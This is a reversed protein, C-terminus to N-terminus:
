LGHTGIDEVGHQFADLIIQLFQTLPLGEHGDQGVIGTLGQDCSATPYGDGTYSGACSQVLFGCFFDGQGTLQSLHIGVTGGGMVLSDEVADISQHDCRAIVPPSDFSTGM